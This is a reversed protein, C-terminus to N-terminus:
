GMRMHLFVQVKLPLNVRVIQFETRSLLQSVLFGHLGHHVLGVVDFKQSIYLMKMFTDLTPSLLSFM